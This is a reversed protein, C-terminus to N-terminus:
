HLPIFKVKWQKAWNESINLDNQLEGNDDYDSIHKSLTKDGAFLSARSSLHMSIDNVYILFLLPGRVSGQPVGANITKWSSTKGNIVVRQKRLHLYDQFWNLLSHKIGISEMKFLIGKHWVKDFAKSIDFFILQIDKHDDLATCVDHYISVLQNTTSDDPTFGSQYTSIVNNKHLYNYM